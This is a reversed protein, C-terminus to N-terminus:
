GQRWVVDGVKWALSSLSDINKISRKTLLELVGEGYMIYPETHAESSGHAGNLNPSQSLM